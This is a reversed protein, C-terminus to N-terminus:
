TDGHAAANLQPYLEKVCSPCISHSFDADSHASIYTEIQNWYGNDDRVKKCSACIPLLGSLTKIKSLAERLETILSERESEIEKRATIDRAIGQFGVIKGDDFMPAMTQELWCVGSSRTAVPFEMVCEKGFARTDIICTRLVRNKWDPSVIETFHRGLLDEETYGTYKTIPQNIYTFYGEDDLTCVIDSASEVMHRYRWESRSLALQSATVQAHLQASSIAGSIQGAVNEALTVHESTFATVSTSNFNLVGVVSDRAILPVSLFSKIGSAVIPQLRPYSSILEDLGDDRPQLLITSRSSVVAETTSGEMDTMDGPRRNPVDLGRVFTESLVGGPQDLVTISIRDFPILK